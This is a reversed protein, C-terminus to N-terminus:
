SKSRNEKLKVQWCYSGNLNDKAGCRPCPYDVYDNKSEFTHKKSGVISRAKQEGEKM